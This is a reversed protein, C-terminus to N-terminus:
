GNLRYLADAASLIQIDKYPHLVLLDNDGTVIINAQAALATAIVIDDKVDRVTREIPHPKVLTALMGYRQMLFAPTINQSALMQTFKKRALVNALEDLLGSSTFLSVKKDRSQDLLRRPVGGWILASVVINTDLVLRM